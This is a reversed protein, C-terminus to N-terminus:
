NSHAAATIATIILSDKHPDKDNPLFLFFLYPAFVFYFLSRFIM